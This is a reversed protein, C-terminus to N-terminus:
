KAKKAAGFDSASMEKVTGDQMLVYGGSQGAKKEHALVTGSGSALLSKGWVYEINGQVLALYAGPYIPEVREVDSINAPAPKKEAEFAKLLEALSQLGEKGTPTGGTGDKAAPAGGGGCGSVLVALAFVAAARVIVKLM